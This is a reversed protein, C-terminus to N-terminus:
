KLASLTNLPNGTMNKMENGRPFATFYICQDGGKGTSKNEVGSSFSDQGFNIVINVDSIGKLQAQDKVYQLYGKLVAVSYFYQRKVEIGKSDLVKGNNQSYANYLRSAADDTIVYNKFDKDYTPAVEAPPFLNAHNLTEMGNIPSISDNENKYCMLYMTQYGMYDEKQHNDIIGDTPYQGLNVGILTEEGVKSGVYDVYAQLVEIPYSVQRADEGSMGKALRQNSLLAYNNALYGNGLAQAAKSDILRSKYNLSVIENKSADSETTNNCSEFLVLVVLFSLFSKFIKTKM